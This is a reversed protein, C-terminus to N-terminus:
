TTWVALITDAFIDEEVQPLLKTPCSKGVYDVRMERGSITAATPTKFGAVADPYSGGMAVNLIVYHGQHTAHVWTADDMDTQKITKQLVGDVYYGLTEPTVSRDQVMAYTHFQGVCNTTPCANTSTMGNPENCIGGPNVGCHMGHNVYPQADIGEMIDYEGVSPWASYNGRYGGGLTWFAPWYGLGNTTTVAPMRINAEIKMKGGPPAVFNTQKTEIRGSTWSGDAARIPTIYLTGKGNLAVNATSSTYSQIEGTGWAAPGGNPYGTGLDYNWLNVSPPKGATGRFDDAFLTKTYGTGAISPLGAQTLPLLTLLASALLSLTTSM